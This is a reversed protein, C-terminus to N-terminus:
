RTNQAELITKKTEEIKPKMELDDFFNYESIWNPLTEESQPFLENLFLLIHKKTNLNLTTLILNDNELFITSIQNCKSQLIKNKSVPNSFIFYSELMEDKLSVEIRGYILNFSINLHLESLVSTFFTNKYSDRISLTMNSYNYTYHYTSNQPLIIITKKKTKEIHSGLSQFDSIKNISRLTNEQNNKKNSFTNKLNIAQINLKKDGQGM